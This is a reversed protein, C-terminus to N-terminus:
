QILYYEINFIPSAMSYNIGPFLGGTMGTLGDNGITSAVGGGSTGYGTQRDQFTVSYRIKDTNNFQKAFKIIKAKVENLTIRYCWYGDESDLVEIVVDGRSLPKITAFQPMSATYDGFKGNVLPMPSSFIQPTDLVPKEVTVTQVPAINQNNNNSQIQGQKQSQKQKNSNVNKIEPSVAVTSQINNLNFNTNANTNKVDNVNSISSKPDDRPTIETAWGYGYSSLSLIMMAVLVFTGIGKKMKWMRRKYINFQKHKRQDEEVGQM